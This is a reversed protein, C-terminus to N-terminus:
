LKKLKWYNLPTLGIAVVRFIFEPSEKLNRLFLKMWKFIKVFQFHNFLYSLSLKWYLFESIVETTKIISRSKMHVIEQLCILIDDHRCTQSTLQGQIGLHYVYVVENFIMVRPNEQLVRLLFIQDEAMKTNLFKANRAISTKFIFRWVGPRAIFRFLNEEFSDGKFRYPLRKYSSSFTAFEGIGVDCNSSRYADFFRQFNDLDVSDDSDWFCVFPTRVQELGANRATGPSNFYGELLKVQNKHEILVRFDVLVSSTLDDQIDHVVIVQFGLKVASEIQKRFEDEHGVIKTLPIVVTLEDYIM